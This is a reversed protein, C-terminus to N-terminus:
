GVRGPGQPGAVDAIHRFLNGGEPFLLAAAAVLVRTTAAGGVFLSARRALAILQLLTSPIYCGRRSHASRLIGEILSEENPSGTLIIQEPIESELRRIM